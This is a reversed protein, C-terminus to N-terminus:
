DTLAAAVEAEERETLWLRMAPAPLAESWYYGQGFGCGLAALADLQGATEVGEAITHLGLAGALRVVASVIATDEDSCGLGAVFSKDIKL